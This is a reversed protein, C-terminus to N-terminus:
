GAYLGHVGEHRLIHKAASFVGTYYYAGGPAKNLQTMSSQWAKKSGQIQMRQKIVECPVYVVSGLTDGTFIVNM